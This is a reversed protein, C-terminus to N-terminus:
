KTEEMEEMKNCIMHMLTIFPLTNEKVSTSFMSCFQYYLHPGSNKELTM